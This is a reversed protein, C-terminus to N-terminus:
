GLALAQFLMKITAQYVCHRLSTRTYRSRRSDFGSIETWIRVVNDLEDADAIATTPTTNTTAM